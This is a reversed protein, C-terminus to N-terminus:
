PMSFSAKGLVKMHFRNYISRSHDVKFGMEEFMKLQETFGDNSFVFECIEQLLVLAYQLYTLDFKM